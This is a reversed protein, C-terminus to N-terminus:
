CPLLRVAVCMCGCGCLGVCRSALPNDSRLMNKYPVQDDTVNGSPVGDWLWVRGVNPSQLTPFGPQAHMYQGVFGNRTPDFAPTLPRWTANLSVTLYLQDAYDKFVYLHGVRAPNTPDPSALDVLELQIVHSDCVESM